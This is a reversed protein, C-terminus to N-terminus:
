ANADTEMSHATCAPTGRSSRKRQWEHRRAAEEAVSVAAAEREMLAACVRLLWEQHTTAPLNPANFFEDVMIAVQDEGTEM